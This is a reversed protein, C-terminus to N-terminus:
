DQPAPTAMSPTSSLSETQILSVANPALTDKTSSSLPKIIYVDETNPLNDIIHNDNNHNSHEYQDDNLIVNNKFQTIMKILKTKPIGSIVLSHYTSKKTHGNQDFSADTEIVVPEPRKYPENDTRLQKVKFTMQNEVRKNFSMITEPAHSKRKLFYVWTYRSYEDVIVLTYKEHNISRPTVPGFLDMHLLHLCKKISSTQKTKFSARHHKVKEYSLCPKNKSYVLSPLGIVLNQTALQNITKFNLHALIKHWIWNHNKSAKAFFYSEQTSSTMDLVYVDRTRLSIMVIEKNYNFITGMKEDFKDNKPNNRPQPRRTRTTSKVDKPSFGNTNSNVDKKTIVHPQLVTIPKTRVSAKVHKYPVFNDVRSAKFPNIRFIGPAIVRENNMITSEQSSPTSNLTVPKSLANSEGVKSIVKSKSLPTVSYLKPGSSSHPKGLISQKLFKTDMSAGKITDEEIEDIDWADAMLDFEKAQLQIWAEEKQAILLRIQNKNNGNENGNGEAQAPNQNANQVVLNKVNQVANYGSQN